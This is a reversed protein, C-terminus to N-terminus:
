WGSAEGGREPPVLACGVSALDTSLAATADHPVRPLHMMSGSLVCHPRRQLIWNWMTSISCTLVVGWMLAWRSPVLTAVISLVIGVCMLFSTLAVVRPGVFLNEVTATRGPVSYLVYVM